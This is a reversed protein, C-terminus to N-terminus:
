RRANTIEVQSNYKRDWEEQTMDQGDGYYWEGCVKCKSDLPYDQHPTWKDCKRCKKVDPGTAISDRAQILAREIEWLNKLKSDCLEYEVLYFPRSGMADGASRVGPVAALAAIVDDEQETQHAFNIDIMFVFGVLSDPYRM